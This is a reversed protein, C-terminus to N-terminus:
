EIKIGNKKLISEVNDGSLGSDWTIKNIAIQQFNFQIYDSYKEMVLQEEDSSEM